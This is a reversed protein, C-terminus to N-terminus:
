FLCLAFASMFLAGKGDNRHEIMVSALPKIIPREVFVVRLGSPIQLDLRLVVPHRGFSIFFM